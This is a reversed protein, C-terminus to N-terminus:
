TSEDVGNLHNHCRAACQRVCSIEGSAALFTDIPACFHISSLGMEIDLMGGSVSEAM